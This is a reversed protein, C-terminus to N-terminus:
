GHPLVGVRRGGYALGDNRIDALGGSSSFGGVSEANIGDGGLELEWITYSDVTM